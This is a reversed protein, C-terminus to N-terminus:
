PIRKAKTKFDMKVDGPVADWIAIGLHAKLRGGREQYAEKDFWRNMFEEFSLVGRHGDHMSPDQFKIQRKQTNYGIAVVYHGSDLKNYEKQKGYAQIACIVPRGLQLYNLLQELTMNNFEETQLGMQRAAKILDEPHTGKKKGADTMNILQTQTKNRGFLESIARLAGPGCDYDSKQDTDPTPIMVSHEFWQKFDM